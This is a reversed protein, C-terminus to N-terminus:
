NTSKIRYANQLKIDNMINELDEKEQGYSHQAKLKHLNYLATLWDHETTQVKNKLSNIQQADENNKNTFWDLWSKSQNQAELAHQLDQKANDYDVYTKESMDQIYDLAKQKQHEKEDYVWSTLSGGLTLGMLGRSMYGPEAMSKLENQISQKFTIDTKPITVKIEEPKTMLNQKLFSLFQNARNGLKSAGQRLTNAQSLSIFVIGGVLIYVKKM